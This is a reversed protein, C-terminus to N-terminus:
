RVKWKRRLPSEVFSYTLHAIGFLIALYVVHEFLSMLNVNGSLSSGLVTKFILKCFKEAFEYVPDHILYISYSINGLHTLFKTNFLRKFVNRNQALFLVFCAFCLIVVFEHYDNFPSNFHMCWVIISIVAFLPWDHNTFRIFLNDRYCRYVLVGLFFEILCRILDQLNTAHAVLGLISKFSYLALLLVLTKLVLNLRTGKCLFPLMFPFILYVFFEASISWSPPNWNGSPVWTQILLLTPLASVLSRHGQFATNEVPVDSFFTLWWKSTELVVLVILVFLHLPYIRALRSLLYQKYHTLRVRDIFKTFYVHSLIFGSLIFFFDVWLYGSAFFYTHRSMEYNYNPIRHQFHHIAVFSAAIGRLPTLSSIYDPQNSNSM